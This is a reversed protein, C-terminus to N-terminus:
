VNPETTEAKDLYKSIENICEDAAENEGIRKFYIYDDMLASVLNLINEQNM